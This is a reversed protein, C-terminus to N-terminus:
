KKQLIADWILSEIRYSDRLNYLDNVKTICTPSTVNIEVLYKDIIDIGAFIINHQKLANGVITAIHLDHDSLITKEALGGAALNTKISGKQPIRKIAGVPKGDVIMIRKDGKIVEPIFKQIIPPTKYKHCLANFALYFSDTENHNHKTVDHGGFDYLPKCVVSQHKKLFALAQEPNSTIMSDITLEPFMLASLKETFNRIGTPNNVILTNKLLELLYTYTIYNMDLPPNQRILLIDTDNLPIEIAQNYKIEKRSVALIKNATAYLKNSRFTLQSPTYFWVEFNRLIAEQALCLSTDTDKNLSEIENIQFVIKM